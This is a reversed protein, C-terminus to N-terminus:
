KRGIRERQRPLYSQGAITCNITKIKVLKPVFSFPCGQQNRQQMGVRHEVQHREVRHDHTHNLVDLTAASCEGAERGHEVALVEVYDGACVPKLPKFYLLM